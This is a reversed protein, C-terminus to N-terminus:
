PAPEEEMYSEDYDQEDALQTLEALAQKRTQNRKQVYDQLDSLAVRRHTGVFHFPIEGTELLSVLYPRSCGLYDAAAQSTLEEGQSLIQVSQGSLLARTAKTLVHFLAEPMQLHGGEPGILMPQQKGDMVELVKLLLERDSQSLNTPNQTKM